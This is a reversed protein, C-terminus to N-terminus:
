KLGAQQIVQAPTMGRKRATEMIDAQSYTKGNPATYTDKLEDTTTEFDLIVKNPDLGREKALKEYNKKNKNYGKLQADYLKNARSVYDKRMSETLREGQLAKNYQARIREPISGANAATAFESERVVSQPDLMKMYNFIMAIDGAASPEQSASQIRNYSDRVDIFPKALSSFEGRLKDEGAAINKESEKAQKMQEQQMKQLGDMTAIQMRNDRLLAARENENQEGIRVREVDSALQIMQMKENSQRRAIEMQIEARLRAEEAQRQMEAQRQAEQLQKRQLQQERERALMERISNAEQLGLQQQALGLEGARLGIQKASLASQTQAEINLPDTQLLRYDTLTAM